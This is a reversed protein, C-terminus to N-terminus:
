TEQELDRRLEASPLLPIVDQVTLTLLLGGTIFNAQALFVPLQADSATLTKCPALVNEDLM